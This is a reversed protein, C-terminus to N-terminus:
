GVPSELLKLTGNEIRAQCGLPLPYNVGHHGIELGLLVPYHTSDLIEAVSRRLVDDVSLGQTERGYCCRGFALGALNSLKGCLKLQTLARHIRYPAEATEELVLITDDYSVDWPTGLLSLFMALNGALIPGKGTGDRLIEGSFSFTATPDSMMTLLADVSAQADVSSSSMAFEQGVTPGHISPLGSQNSITVLLVTVDSYGVILKSVLAIKKFDLLPLLQISGYGGRASIIAEVEDDELLDMLSQVRTSASACAFGFDYHGYAGTPDLPCKVKYDRRQIEEIGARFKEPRIPSAPAFIGITGGATLPKAKKRATNM